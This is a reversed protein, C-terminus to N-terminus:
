ASAGWNRTLFKQHKRDQLPPNRAGTEARWKEIETEAHSLGTRYKVSVPERLAGVVTPRMTPASDVAESSEKYLIRHTHALASLRGHRLDARQAHVAAGTQARSRPDHHLRPHVEPLNCSYRM